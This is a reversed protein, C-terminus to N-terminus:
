TISTFSHIEDPYQFYIAFLQKTLEKTEKQKKKQKLFQMLTM